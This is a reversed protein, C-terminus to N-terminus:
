QAVGVVILLLVHHIGNLHHPLPRLCRAVQLGRGLLRHLRLARRNVNLGGAGIDNVNRCIIRPQNVSNRDHCPRTPIWIGSDPEATGIEGESDAESDAEKGTKPPPPTMPSEIPMVSVRGIVMCPVVGPAIRKIVAVTVVPSSARPAHCRVHLTAHVGVASAISSASGANVVIRACRNAREASIGLSSSSVSLRSALGANVRASEAVVIM